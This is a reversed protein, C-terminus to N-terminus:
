IQHENKNEEITITYSKGQIDVVSVRKTTSLMSGHEDLDFRVKGVSDILGNLDWMKLNKSILYSLYDCYAPHITLEQNM